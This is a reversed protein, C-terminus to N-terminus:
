FAELVEAVTRGSGALWEALTAGEVLEMAVFLQEGVTGVDHVAVVNSHSLKAIAKAEDLLRSSQAEERRHLVKIAVKRDLEPDYAAYGRGMGGSGVARLVVYRGLMAGRALSAGPEVPPASSASAGARGLELLRARCSECADVHADAQEAEAASL